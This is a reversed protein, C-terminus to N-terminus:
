SVPVAECMKLVSLDAISQHAWSFWSLHSHIERQQLEMSPSCLDRGDSHVCLDGQEVNSGGCRSGNCHTFLEREGVMGSCSMDRPLRKLRQLLQIITSNFAPFNRSLSKWSQSYCLRHVLTEHIHNPTNQDSTFLSFHMTLKSNSKNAQTPHPNKKKNSKKKFQRKLIMCSWNTIKIM